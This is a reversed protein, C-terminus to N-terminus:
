SFPWVGQALLYGWMKIEQTHRPCLVVYEPEGRSGDSYALESQYVSWGAPPREAPLGDARRPIVRPYACGIRSCGTADLDFLYYPGGPRM